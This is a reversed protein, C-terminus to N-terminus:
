LFVAGFVRYLQLGVLWSPPTADLIEGIRASRLLIPVFLLVPLFIAIPILPPGGAGPRAVFVGNVAMVWVVALWSATFALMLLLMWLAGGGPRATDSASNTLTM